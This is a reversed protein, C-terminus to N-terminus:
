RITSYQRGRLLEMSAYGRVMGYGSYRVLEEVRKIDGMISSLVSIITFTYGVYWEEKAIFLTFSVSIFQFSVVVDNGCVCWDVGEDVGDLVCPRACFQGCPCDEADAKGEKVFGNTSKVCADFGEGDEHAKIDECADACSQPMM